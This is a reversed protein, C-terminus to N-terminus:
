NENKIVFKENALKAITNDDESNDLIEQLKPVVDTQYGAMAKKLNNMRDQLQNVQIMAGILLRAADPRSMVYEEGGAVLTNFLEQYDDRMTKATEYGKKDDKSKDYDMVHEASIATAQAIDKFLTLYRKDM